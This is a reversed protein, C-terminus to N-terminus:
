NSHGSVDPFAEILDESAKWEGQEFYNLNNELLTFANTSYSLEGASNTVSSVKRYVSFNQGREVMTRPGDSLPESAPMNQALLKSGLILNLALAILVRNRLKGGHTANSSARTISLNQKM